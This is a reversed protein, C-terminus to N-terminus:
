GGSPLVVPEGSGIRTTPKSFDAANSLLNGLEPRRREVWRAALFNNMRTTRRIGPFVTVTLTALLIPWTWQRFAAPLVLVADLLILLALCVSLATIGQM